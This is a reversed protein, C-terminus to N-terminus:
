KNCTWYYTALNGSKPIMPTINHVMETNRLDLHESNQTLKRKLPHNDYVFSVSFGPRHNLDCKNLSASWKDCTLLGTTQNGRTAMKMIISLPQKMSKIKLREPNKTLKTLQTILYFSPNLLMIPGHQRHRWKQSTNLLSLKM